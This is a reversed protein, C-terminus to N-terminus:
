EGSVIVKYSGYIGLINNADWDVNNVKTIGGNKKAAEISCDGIAVWSLISICEAEGTKSSASSNSTATVPFKVRTYLTGIPVPTACGLLMFVGVAGLAFVFGFKKM